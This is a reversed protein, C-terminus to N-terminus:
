YGRSQLYTALQELERCMDEVASSSLRGQQPTVPPAFGALHAAVHEPLECWNRLFAHVKGYRLSNFSEAISRTPPDAGWIRGGSTLSVDPTAGPYPQFTIATLTTPDNRLVGTLTRRYYQHRLLVAGALCVRCQEPSLTGWAGLDIAAGAAVVNRVDDIAQRIATSPTKSLPIISETQPEGGDYKDLLTYLKQRTITCDTGAM